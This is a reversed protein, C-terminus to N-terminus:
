SPATPESAARRKRKAKTETPEAEVVLPAAPPRAAQRANTARVVATRGTRVILDGELCTAIFPMEPDVLALMGVPLGPLSVTARM